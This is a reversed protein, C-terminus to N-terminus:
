ATMGSRASARWPVFHTSQCLGLISGIEHLHQYHLARQQSLTLQPSTACYISLYSCFKPIVTRTDLQEGAPLAAAMLALCESALVRIDAALEGNADRPYEATPCAAAPSAEWPGQINLLSGAPWAQGSPIGALRLFIHVLGPSVAQHLATATARQLIERLAKQSAERISVRDERLVNQFLLQIATRLLPGQLWIETAPNPGGGAESRNPSTTWGAPQAAAPHGASTLALAALCKVCAMRVSSLSHRFLPWSRPLVEPLSAQAEQCVGSTYLAALLQM